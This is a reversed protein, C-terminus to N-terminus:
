FTKKGLMKIFDTNFELKLKQENSDGHYYINFKTYVYKRVEKRLM